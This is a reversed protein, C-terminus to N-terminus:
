RAAGNTRPRGPMSKARATPPTGAKGGHKLTTQDISNVTIKVGDQEMTMTSVGGRLVDTTTTNSYTKLEKAEKKAAETLAQDAASVVVGTM